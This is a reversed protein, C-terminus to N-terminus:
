QVVTRREKEFYQADYQDVLNMCIKDVDSPNSTSSVSSKVLMDATENKSGRIRRTLLANIFLGTINDGSKLTAYQVTITFTASDTTDSVLIINSKNGLDLKLDQLIKGTLQDNTGHVKLKLTINHPTYIGHFSFAIVSLFANRLIRTM